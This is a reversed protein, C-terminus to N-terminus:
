SDNQRMEGRKAVDYIIHMADCERARQFVKKKPIPRFLNRSQDTLDNAATLAKNSLPSYPIRWINSPDIIPIEEIQMSQLTQTM